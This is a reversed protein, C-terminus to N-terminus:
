NHLKAKLNKKNPTPSVSAKLSGPFLQAVKATLLQSTARARVPLHQEQETKYDQAEELNQSNILGLETKLRM